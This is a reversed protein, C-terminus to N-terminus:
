SKAPSQMARKISTALEDNIREDADLYLVWETEVHHLAFNRQAAFDSDWTRYIVKAGNAEALEITKDTSGSDVVLVKDTVQRANLIADVINNEENKTLIVVTLSNM